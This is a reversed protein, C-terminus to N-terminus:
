TEGLRKVSVNTGDSIRKAFRESKVKTTVWNDSMVRESHHMDSKADSAAWGGPM